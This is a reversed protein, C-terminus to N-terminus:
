VPKRETLSNVESDGLRYIYGTECFEGTDM